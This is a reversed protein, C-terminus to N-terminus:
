QWNTWLWIINCPGGSYSPGSTIVFDLLDNTSSSKMNLYNLTGDFPSSGACLVPWFEREGYNSDAYWGNSMSAIMFMGLPYPNNNSDSPREVIFEATSGVFRSSPLTGWFSSGNTYNYLMFWVSNDQKTLRGWSGNSFWTQGNEDALFIDVSVHDGPSVPFNTVGWPPNPFDEIWMWYNTFTWGFFGFNWSESDTGSQFIDNNSNDLGVWEAAASYPPGFPIVGPVNWDAETLYFQGVPNTIYAGSWNNSNSNFEEHLFPSPAVPPPLPLTPSNAFSVDRHPVLRPNVATFTRSVIQLWRAYRHPAIKPDPRPPYGNAILEKNSRAMPDGELPPRLKGTPRMEKETSHANPIGVQLQIPHRTVNGDENKCELYVAIPQANTNAKAHIRVIGNDDADFQLQLSKETEHKLTCIAKPATQITVLTEVEPLLTQQIPSANAPSAGLLILTWGLVLSFLITVPKM